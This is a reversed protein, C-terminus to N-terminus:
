KLRRGRRPISVDDPQDRVNVFEPDDSSADGGEPISVGDTSNEKAIDRVDSSADGGEPSQSEVFDFM